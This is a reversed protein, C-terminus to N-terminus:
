QIYNEIKTVINFLFNQWENASTNDSFQNCQGDLIAFFEKTVHGRQLWENISKNQWHVILKKSTSNSEQNIISGNSSIQSYKRGHKITSTNVTERSNEHISSRTRDSWCAYVFHFQLHRWFVINQNQQIARCYAGQLLHSYLIQIDAQIVRRYDQLFHNEIRDVLIFALLNNYVQLGQLNNLLTVNSSYKLRIFDLCSELNVMQDIQNSIIQSLQHKRDVVLQNSDDIQGHLTKFVKEYTQHLNDMLVSFIRDTQERILPDTQSSRRSHAKKALRNLNELSDMNFLHQRRPLTEDFNRCMYQDMSRICKILYDISRKSNHPWETVTTRYGTVSNILSPLSILLLSSLESLCIVYLDKNIVIKRYVHPIPIYSSSSQLFILRQSEMTHIRNSDNQIDCALLMIMCLDSPKLRVRTSSEYKYVLKDRYLIFCFSFMEKHQENTDLKLIRELKHALQQCLQNIHYGVYLKEISEIMLPIKSSHENWQDLIALLTRQISQNKAVLYIGNGAMFITAACFANVKFQYQLILTNYTQEDDHDDNHDANMTTTQHDHQCILHIFIFENKQVLLTDPIQDFHNRRYDSNDDDDNHGNCERFLSVYPTLYVSLWNHVNHGDEDDDENDDGDDAGSEPDYVIDSQNNIDSFQLLIQRFRSDCHSFILNNKPDFIVFSSM